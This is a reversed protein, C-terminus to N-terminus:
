SDATSRPPQCSQVFSHGFLTLELYSYGFSRANYHKIEILGLRLLNAAMTPGLHSPADLHEMLRSSEKEKRLAELQEYNGEERQANIEDEHTEAIIDLERLRMLLRAEYPSLESLMSVFAPFVEIQQAAANALLRVWMQHLGRDEEVSSKELLPWLVRGPVASAKLGAEDLVQAAGAVVQMAKESRKQKWAEIPAAIGGGAAKISPGLLDRVFEMAVDAGKKGVYALGLIRPAADPVDPTAAGAGITATAETAPDTHAADEAAAAVPRVRYKGRYFDHEDVAPQRNLRDVGLVLDLAEFVTTKGTNNDGILVGHKPLLLTASQIGRFNRISLRCARM